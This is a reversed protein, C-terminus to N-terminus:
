KTPPQPEEIIIYHSANALIFNIEDKTPSFSGCIVTQSPKDFFFAKCPEKPLDSKTNIAVWEPQMQSIAWNVVEICSKKIKDHHKKNSFTHEPYMKDALIEAQKEIERATPKM